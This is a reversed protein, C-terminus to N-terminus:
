NPDSSRDPLLGVLIIFPLFIYINVQFMINKFVTVRNSVSNYITQPIFYDSIRFDLLFHTNIALATSKIFHLNIVVASVM